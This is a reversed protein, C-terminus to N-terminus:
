LLFILSCFVPIWQLWAFTFRFLFMKKKPFFHQVISLSSLFLLMGLEFTKHLRIIFFTFIEFFIWYFRIFIFIRQRGSKKKGLGFIKHIDITINATNSKANWQSNWVSATALSVVGLLSIAQYPMRHCWDVSIKQMGWKKRIIIKKHYWELVNNTDTKKWQNMRDIDFWMWMYCELEATRYFGTFNM